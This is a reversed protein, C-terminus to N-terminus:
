PSDSLVFKGPAVKWLAYKCLLEDAGPRNGEGYLPRHVELEYAVVLGLAVLRL